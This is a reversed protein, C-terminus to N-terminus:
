YKTRQTFTHQSHQHKARHVLCGCSPLARGSQEQWLAIFCRIRGVEVIDLGYATMGPIAVPTTIAAETITGTPTDEEVAAVM